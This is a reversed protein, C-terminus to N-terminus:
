VAIPAKIAPHPNYGELLFDEFRFDLVDKIDPNLRLNADRPARSLQERMQDVHNVYIHADGLTHVLEGPQLGCGRAMM